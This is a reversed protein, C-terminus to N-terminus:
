DAKYVGIRIKQDDDENMGDYLEGDPGKSSLWEELVPASSGDPMSVDRQVVRYLIQAGFVDVFHGGAIQGRRVNYFRMRRKNFHLDDKLKGDPGWGENTPDLEWGIDILDLDADPLPLGDEDVGVPGSFKYTAKMTKWARGLDAILLDNQKKKARRRAIVVTSSLLASLVAIISMVLLLEVLTFGRTWKRM